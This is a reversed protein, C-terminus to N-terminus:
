QQDFTIDQVLLIETPAPDARVMWSSGNIEFLRCRNGTTAFVPCVEAAFLHCFSFSGVLPSLLVQRWWGGSEVFVHCFRRLHADVVWWSHCVDSLVCEGGVVNSLCEAFEVPASNRFHLNGIVVWWM